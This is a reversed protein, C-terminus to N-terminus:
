KINGLQAFQDLVELAVATVGIIGLCPEPVHKIEQCGSPARGASRSVLAPMM